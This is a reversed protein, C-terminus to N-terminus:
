NLSLWFHAIPGKLLHISIKPRSGKRVRKQADVAGEHIDLSVVTHGEVDCWSSPFNYVVFVLEYVQKIPCHVGM